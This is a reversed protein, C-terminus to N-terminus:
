DSSTGGPECHIRISTIKIQLGPSNQKIAFTIFNAEQDVSMSIWETAQTTSTPQLLVNQKFPTEQEDAFVDVYLRGGNTNILFEVHSVYVRRGISRWPNFPITEAYFNIVKSLQGTNPTYADFLISDVDIEISTNTASLVTYLNGSQEDTEEDYNNIQIMGEVDSITVFDGPLIATATVTLITTTGPTINTIDSFYDDFDLNLEYIFGYDDGALTKQVSQGLGIRDWIEETNRWRKWSRNGSTEDIDDWTLNLGIDCQGLVSFRMDFVSWSDEEYNKVLVSNQTTAGSESILYSWLFHKNTRDFGGYTLNFGVQDIVNETFDNIKDDTRLNERGDTALVGTKGVSNVKDDWSIASFKANTGLVGPIARGFYPNFADRTKELVYGMRDFNLIIIQGLISAGTINQYTDAQFLGSGAVNFKDGNGSTTRIGSYLIGQNYITGAIQPNILNLRENFWLVYTASNLQGEIPAAYDPNDGVDTFDKVVSGDYFFVSSGANPTIEEGTFIFRAINTATPYSTGSIYADNNSINFGTYAALSGGFPIQDFIGSGTNYKYLFNLDFALLEKTGDPLTHEFIGMVRQEGALRPAFLGFGQRSQLVQRYVFGNQLSQFSDEPQLYNVGTKSIGTRIGTIEFVEM